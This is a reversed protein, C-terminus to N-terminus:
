QIYIDMEEVLVEEDSNNQDRCIRVEIDENMPVPLQRFFWPSGAQTCCNNRKGCGRGDWLADDKTYYKGTTFKGTNGSECYYHGQVFTPPAPGPYEACPCNYGGGTVYNYRYDDSLGVAYTWVHKRPQGATISIGDVYPGNISSTAKEPEYGKATGLAQAAPFFANMSGKQYGRLQGCIRTYRTQNVPFKVSYCGANHGGICYRNKLVNDYDTNWGKPCRDGRSTNLSVVRTWGGQHGGCELEMDCYVVTNHKLQYYGSQTTVLERYLQSCTGQPAMTSGYDHAAAAIVTVLLLTYKLVLVNGM